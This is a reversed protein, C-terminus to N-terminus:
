VVVKGDLLASMSVPFLENVQRYMEEAYVRIELQAHPDMREKLFKSISHLNASAYFRTYLNQPLFMRAQERAIGDDLMKNYLDLCSKVCDRMYWEYDEEGEFTGYSGQRNKSDQYRLETPFYFEIDESTYRRSIENYSWMRHRHWQSRVFLPCKVHLTVYTHEFPSTHGNRALYNILKADGSKDVGTRNDGAYSVRAARVVSGDSGMSDLVHIDSKGDKLVDM